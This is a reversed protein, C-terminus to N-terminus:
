ILEALPNNIVDRLLSTGTKLNKSRNDWRKGGVTVVGTKRNVFLNDNTLKQLFKLVEMREQRNGALVLKEGDPDILKM